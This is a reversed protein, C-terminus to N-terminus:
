AGYAANLRTIREFEIATLSDLGAGAQEQTSASAMRVRSGLDPHARLLALQAEKSAEEVVDKMAQLLAAIDPFPKREWAREAIWPSDEFIWGIALVFGSRDLSNLEEIQM